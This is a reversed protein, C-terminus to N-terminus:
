RESPPPRRLTQFSTNAPPALASTATATAAAIRNPPSLLPSDVVWFSATACCGSGVAPSFRAGSEPWGLGASFGPSFCGPFASAPCGSPPPWAESGPAGSVEGLSPVMTTSFGLCAPSFSGGASFPLGTRLGPRTPFVSFVTAKEELGLLVSFGVPVGEARLSELVARAAPDLAPAGRDPDRASLRVVVGVNGAVALDAAFGEDPVRLSSLLVFLCDAYKLALDTIEQAYGLPDRSLYLFSRTGLFRASSIIRDMDVYRMSEAVCPACAPDVLWPGAEPLLPDLGMLVMAPPLLAEEQRPLVSGPHFPLGDLLAAAFRARASPHLRRVAQALLSGPQAGGGPGGSGGGAEIGRGVGAVAHELAATRSEM